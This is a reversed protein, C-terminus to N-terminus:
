VAWGFAVDVHLTTTYTTAPQGSPVNLKLEIRQFSGTAIASGATGPGQFGFGVLPPTTSELTNNSVGTWNHYRGHTTDTSGSAYPAGSHNNDDGNSTPGIDGIRPGQSSWRGQKADYVRTIELNSAPIGYYQPGSSYPIALTSTFNDAYLRTDFGGRYSKTDTYDIYLSGVSTSGPTTASTSAPGLNANTIAVAFTGTETLGVTVTETDSQIDASAPLIASLSLGLAAVLGLAKTKLNM